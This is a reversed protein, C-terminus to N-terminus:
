VERGIQDAVVIPFSIEPVETPPSLMAILQEKLGVLEREIESVKNQYAAVEVKEEDARRAYLNMDSVHSNMHRMNMSVAESLSKVSAILTLQEESFVAM